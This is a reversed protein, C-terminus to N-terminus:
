VNDKLFTYLEEDSFDEASVQMEYETLGNQYTAYIHGSGAYISLIKKDNIFLKGNFLKEVNEKTVVGYWRIWQYLKGTGIRKHKELKFDKGIHLKELIYNDITKMVYIIM